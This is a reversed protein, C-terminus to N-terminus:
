DFLTHGMAKSFRFVGFTGQLEPLEAKMLEKMTELVALDGQIAHFPICSYNDRRQKARVDLFGRYCSEEEIIKTEKIHNYKYKIYFNVMKSYLDSPYGDDYEQSIRFGVYLGAGKEIQADIDEDEDADSETEQTPVAQSFSKRKSIVPEDDSDYDEYVLPGKAKAQQVLKRKKTIQTNVSGVSRGLRAAIDKTSCGETRWQHLNTLELESYKAGSSRPAKHSQKRPKSVATSNSIPTASTESSM